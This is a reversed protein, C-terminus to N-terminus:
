NASGLRVQVQSRQSATAGKQVTTRITGEVGLQRLYALVNRARQRAITVSAATGRADSFTRIVGTVEEDSLSDALRKLASKASASLAPSNPKFRV